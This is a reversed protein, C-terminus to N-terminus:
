LKCQNRSEGHHQLEDVDTFSSVITQLVSLDSISEFFHPTLSVHCVEGDDSSVVSAPM